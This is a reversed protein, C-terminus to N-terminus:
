GAQPSPELPPPDIRIRIRSARAGDIALAEAVAGEQDVRDGVAPIRSEQAALLGSSTDVELASLDLGLKKNVLKIPTSGM